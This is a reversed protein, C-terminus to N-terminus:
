AVRVGRWEEYKRTIRPNSSGFISLYKVVSEVKYLYISRRDNSFHPTIGNNQLAKAMGGVLGPAFSTFTLGLNRYEKGAVRHKHIFLCGDTDMLGRVFAKEYSAKKHVWSPFGIGLRIKDGRTFGRDILFDLVTTSSCVIVLAHREREMFRIELKFLRFILNKIYEAYIRDAISNVTIAFQWPNSVGGDGAMIGMFEALEVSDEPLKVMKRHSKKPYKLLSADM